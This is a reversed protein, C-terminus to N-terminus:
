VEQITNLLKTMAQQLKTQSKANEDMTKRPNTQKGEQRTQTPSTESGSERGSTGRSEQDHEQTGFIDEHSPTEQPPQSHPEGKRAEKPQEAPGKFAKSFKSYPAKEFICMQIQRSKTQEQQNHPLSRFGQAMAQATIEAIHEQFKGAYIGGSIPLLRLETLPTHLFEKLINHYVQALQHVTEKRSTNQAKRFDPGVAHICHKDNYAHYKVQGTEKIASRVPAPFAEDNNINLWKYVSASAGGARAPGKDTIYPLGAPDVVACNPGPKTEQKNQRIGTGMVGHQILRTSELFEISNCLTAQQAAPQSRRTWKNSKGIGEQKQPAKEHEAVCLHVAKHTESCTFAVLIATAVQPEQHGDEKKCAKVAQQMNTM